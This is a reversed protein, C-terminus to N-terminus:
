TEQSNLRWDFPLLRILPRRARLTTALDVPMAPLLVDMVQHPKVVGTILGAAGDMRHPYVFDGGFWRLIPSLYLTNTEAEFRLGRTSDAVFRRLAAELQARLTAGTYAESGLLAAGRTANTIAVHVRPDGFARLINAHLTHLSLNRRGIPYPRTFAHPIARISLVPYHQVVQYVAIANYANLYFALQDDADAFTEPNSEALRHLYMEILRRVRTMTGYDLAGNQAFRALLASWEGHQMRGAGVGRLSAIRPAPGWAAASLWVAGNALATLTSQHTMRSVNSKQAMFRNHSSRHHTTLYAACSLVVRSTASAQNTIGYRRIHM